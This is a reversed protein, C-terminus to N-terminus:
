VFIVIIVHVKNLVEALQHKKELLAQAQDGTMPDLLIEICGSQVQRPSPMGRQYFADQFLSWVM